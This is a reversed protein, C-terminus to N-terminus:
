QSLEKDHREGRPFHVLRKGRKIVAKVVVPADGPVPYPSSLDQNFLYMGSVQMRIFM